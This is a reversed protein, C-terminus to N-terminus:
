QVLHFDPGLHWEIGRWRAKVYQGARWLFIGELFAPWNDGTVPVKLLCGTVAGVHTDHTVMIDLAPLPSSPYLIMDLAALVQEPLVGNVEGRALQEWAPEMFPHSLRNDSQVHVAWGAGRAISSATDICRDVPSSMIRGCTFRKGIIGGLEEAMHIGEETLKALYPEAPDLIPHRASHRMLLAVPRDNPIHDLDSLLSIPIEAM